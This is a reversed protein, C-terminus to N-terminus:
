RKWLIVQWRFPFRMRIDICNPPINAKQLLAHWDSQVFAREISVAGDHAILRNSFVAPALMQWLFKATRCRVLDNIIVAKEAKEFAACLFGTLEDDTMHHCVLTSIIVDAKVLEKSCAFHLGEAEFKKTHRLATDSIDIGLCHVQPFRKKVENLFRGDGCGVDLVSEPKISEFLRFTDRHIGSWKGVYFLKLLCEEYEKQTYFEPGRDMLEIENSREKM